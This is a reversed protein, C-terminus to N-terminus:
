LRGACIPGIGAEISVENTLTRGCVCCTGYLAGFEKAQEITMRMEPTLKYVVGKEYEFHAKWTDNYEDREMVLLKAYMRRGDGQAKNFQVKYIAGNPMRYMGDETIPSSAPMRQRFPCVVLQQIFASALKWDIGKAIADKMMNAADEDVERNRLLSELYSVQKETAAYTNPM